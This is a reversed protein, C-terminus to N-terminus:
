VAGAKMAACIANIALLWADRTPTDFNAGLAQGISWLLATTLTHYQEPRVGYEIHKRGLEALRPRVLQFDDLSEVVSTLMDVLKRGQVALDNHFLRRSDPDLEFLRGYFLLAFPEPEERLLEISERVLRIQHVTM